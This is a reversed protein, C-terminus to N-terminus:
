QFRAAIHEIDTLWKTGFGRMAELVRTPRQEVEARLAEVAGYFSPDVALEGHFRALQARELMRVSRGIRPFCILAPVERGRVLLLYRWRYAPAHGAPLLEVSDAAPADGMVFDYAKSVREPANGAFLVYHRAPNVPRPADALPERCLCTLGFLAILRALAEEPLAAKGAIWADLEAKALGVRRAVALSPEPWCGLLASVIGPVTDPRAAATREAGPGPNSFLNDAEGGPVQLAVSAHRAASLGGAQFRLGVNRLHQWAGQERM